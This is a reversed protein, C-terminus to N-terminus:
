EARMQCIQEWHLLYDNQLNVFMDKSLFFLHLAHKDNNWNKDTNQKTLQQQKKHSEKYTSKNELDTNRM